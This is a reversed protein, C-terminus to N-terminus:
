TIEAGASSHMQTFESTSKKSVTSEQLFAWEQTREANISRQQKQTAAEFGRWRLKWTGVEQGWKLRMDWLESLHIM